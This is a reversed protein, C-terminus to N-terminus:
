TGHAQTEFRFVNKKMFGSRLIGANIQGFPCFNSSSMSFIKLTENYFVFNDGIVCATSTRHDAHTGLQILVRHLVAKHFHLFTVRRSQIEIGVSCRIILEFAALYTVRCADHERCRQHGFALPLSKKTERLNALRM